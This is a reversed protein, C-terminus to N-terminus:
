EAQLQGPIIRIQGGMAEAQARMARLFTEAGEWWEDPDIGIFLAEKRRSALEALFVADGREVAQYFRLTM